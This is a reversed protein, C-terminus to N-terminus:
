PAWRALFSDILHRSISLRDPLDPLHDPSYWGADELEEPDIRIEGAAYQATFGVMLSHPFPWPQSGFYRIDRVAIGVEERLERAVAEELTEGPEVFGAVISYRGRPFRASRALLLQRGREVLVIVAPSLRPFSQLGCHPCERARDKAHHSTPTGCQGCFRHTRDWNVIQIARGAVWFTPEDLRGFLPRLGQLEQGPAPAFEDPLDLAYCYHSPTQGLYHQSLGTLGLERLEALFPVRAQDEHGLVLLQDRQFAFALAPEPDGAPSVVAPNFPTTQM